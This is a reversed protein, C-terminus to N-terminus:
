KTTFYEPSFEEFKIKKLFKKTVNRLNYNAIFIYVILREKLDLNKVFLM